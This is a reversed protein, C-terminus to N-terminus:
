VDKDCVRVRVSESHPFASKLIMAAAVLQYLGAQQVAVRVAEQKHLSIQAWCDLTDLWVPWSHIHPPTGM